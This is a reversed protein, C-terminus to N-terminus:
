CQREFGIDETIRKKSKKWTKPCLANLRFYFRTSNEETDYEQKHQKRWLWIQLHVVFFLDVKLSYALLIDKFILRSGCQRMEYEM